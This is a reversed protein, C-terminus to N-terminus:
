TNDIPLQFTTELWKKMHHYQKMRAAAYALYDMSTLNEAACIVAWIAWLLNSLLAFCNVEKLWIELCDETYVSLEDDNDNHKLNSNSRFYERYASLYVKMWRKQFELSPYKDFELAYPGTFECFHNGIDFAAYNLDCYEMDILHISNEDPALIINAANLDNHCLVIKSIPNPIYQQKIKYMENLAYAKSPFISEYSSYKINSLNESSIDCGQIFSYVSGNNFLGYMKRYNELHKVTKMYKIENSRDILSSTLDGHISILFSTTTNQSHSPTTCSDPQNYDIKLLTNSFGNNLIKTVIYKQEYEPFLLLILQYITKYDDIGNITLNFHPVDSKTGNMQTTM